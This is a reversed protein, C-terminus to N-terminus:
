FATMINQLITIGDMGYLISVAVEPANTAQIMRMLTPVDLTQQDNELKSIASRSMHVKEALEEQSWGKRTRLAKIIVGFKM